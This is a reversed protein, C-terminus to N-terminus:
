FMEWICAGDQLSFSEFIQIIDPDFQGFESPQDALSIVVRSPVAGAGSLQSVAFSNCLFELDQSQTEFTETGTFAGSVFRFRYVLGDGVYDRLAEQLYAEIGSPLVLREEKAKDQALTAQALLLGLIAIWARRM